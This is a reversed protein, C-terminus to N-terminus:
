GKVYIRTYLITLEFQENSLAIPNEELSPPFPLVLSAMVYDLRSSVCFEQGCLMECLEIQPVTM